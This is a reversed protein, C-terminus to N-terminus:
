PKRREALFFKGEVLQRAIEEVTSVKSICGEQYRIHAHDEAVRVAVPQFDAAKMIRALCILGMVRVMPSQDTLLRQFDGLKGLQLLRDSLLHFKGPSLTFGVEYDAVDLQRVEALTSEWIPSAPTVPSQAQAVGALLLLTLAILINRVM